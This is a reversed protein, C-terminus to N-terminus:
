TGSCSRWRRASVRRPRSAWRLPAPLRTPSITQMQLGALGLGAGVLVGMLTQPMRLQWLITAVTRDEGNPGGQLGQWVSALPLGSPGTTLDLVMFACLCTMAAILSANRRASARRYAGRMADIDGIALTM